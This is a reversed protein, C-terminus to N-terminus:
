LFLHLYYGFYTGYSQAVFTVSELIVGVVRDLNRTKISESLHEGM